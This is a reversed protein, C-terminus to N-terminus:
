PMSAILSRYQGYHRVARRMALEDGSGRGISDLLRALNYHADALAPELELAREYAACAEATRGGSDEIAVGLNFWYLGIERVCVALRYHGEAAAPDNRDHLLKGLNNHADAIDPRGALARRYAAIAEEDQGAAECACGREFWAMAPMARRM